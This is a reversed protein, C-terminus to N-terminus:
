AVVDMLSGDYHITGQPWVQEDKDGVSGDQCQQTTTSTTTSAEPPHVEVSSGTGPQAGHDSDDDSRIPITWRREAASYLADPPLQQGSNVMNTFIAGVADSVAVRQPPTVVIPQPPIVVPPQPPIVVPPQSPVTPAIPQPPVITTSFDNVFGGINAALAANRGSEEDALKLNAVKMRQVSSMIRKEEKLKTEIADERYEAVTPKAAFRSDYHRNQKISSDAKNLMIREFRGYHAVCYKNHSGSHIPKRCTYDRTGKKRWNCHNTPAKIVPITQMQDSTSM